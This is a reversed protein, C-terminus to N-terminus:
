KGTFRFINRLAIYAIPSIIAIKTTLRQYLPMKNIFPNHLADPIQKTCYTTMQKLKLRDIKFTDSNSVVYLTNVLYVKIFYCDLVDKYKLYVGDNKANTLIMKASILREKIALPDNPTTANTSFRNQRYKYLANKCPAIKEIKFVLRIFTPTDEYRIKEPFRIDNEKFLSSSFLYSWIMGHSLILHERSAHDLAHAKNEHPKSISGFTNGNEDIYQFSAEVAESHTEEAVHYLQEFYNSSVMDDSDIFAIYKGRALDIGRNRATGQRSNEKMKVVTFSPHKKAYGLLVNLSDDESSDDICIIEIDKLTQALLSDLCPVLFGTRSQNYVPVIVSICPYKKKNKILIDCDHLTDQNTM